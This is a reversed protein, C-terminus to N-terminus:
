ENYGKYRKNAISIIEDTIDIADSGYLVNGSLTVGIVLDIGEEKAYDKIYSNIQNLAGQTLKEDEKQIIEEYQNLFQSIELQKEDLRNELSKKQTLTLDPIKLNKDITELDKNLSDLHAKFKSASVALLEKADKLGEFNEVVLLSKVFAIKPIKSHTWILSFVLLLITFALSLYIIHHSKM